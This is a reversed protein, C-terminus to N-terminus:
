DNKVYEKVCKLPVEVVSHTNLDHLIAFVRLNGKDDFGVVRRYPYYVTGGSVVKLVDPVNQKIGFVGSPLISVRQCMTLYKHKDIM